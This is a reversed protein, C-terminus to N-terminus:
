KIMNDAQFNLAFTDSRLGRRLTEVALADNPAVNGLHIDPGLLNILGVQQPKLPAEWIVESGTVTQAERVFEPDLEGEQNYIGVDKGSERGEVIVYAAGASRDQEYTHRLEQLTVQSGKEKKGIESLVLFSESAQHIIDERMGPPLSLTGESIEVAPFGIQELKWLYQQWREQAFAVEFFTGGPYLWIDHHKAAEIKRKLVDPPTFATTGFGLKIFDIYAGAVHLLDAFARPGMGTDILMTLGTRRPKTERDNVWEWDM